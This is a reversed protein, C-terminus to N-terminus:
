GMFMNIIDHTDATQIYKKFKGWKGLKSIESLFIMKYKELEEDRVRASYDADMLGYPYGPLVVDNCNESLVSMIENIEDTSLKNVQDRQIEYRFIREAAPHLKVIFISAEHEASLIDAVPYYYWRDYPIDNDEALKRVAGLLPLGTDTYLSCTKSLGSFIVGKNKASEYARRSYKSENTEGTQLSGDRVIIDNEELENDIVHKAFEWEAFRRAISAVRSIDARMLGYRLTKDMSSFSLDGEKPLFEFHKERIPLIFTDYYIEGNKFRSFTASFFEMKDPISNSLLRKNGKFINFYVRNIQVSFNPAGILEQNGGDVFAIKRGSKVINIPRFNSSDFPYTHYEPRSFFPKGLDSEIIQEDLKEVLKRIADVSM